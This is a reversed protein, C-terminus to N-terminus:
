QRNGAVKGAPLEVWLLGGRGDWIQGGMRADLVDCLKHTLRISLAPKGADPAFPELLRKMGETGMGPAGALVGHRIEFRLRGARQRRAVLVTGGAGCSRLSAAVLSRLLKHLLVLDGNAVEGGNNRSKHFRLREGGDGVLPACDDALRDWLDSLMFDACGPQMRGESLRALDILADFEDLFGTHSAEIREALRDLDGSLARQRLASIFLGLAQLPQRLDHNVSLLLSESRGGTEDGARASLPVSPARRRGPGGRLFWGLALGALLAGLLELLLIM